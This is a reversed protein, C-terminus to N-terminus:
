APTLLSSVYLLLKDESRALDLGTLEGIRRLRYDLTNRHIGLAQATAASNENRAFWTELTERLMRRSRDHALRAIPMRLQRAEWGTDLGSLLVPLALEYYSFVQQQPDREHGIRAATRASRYSIAAAEIGPLAIGMSLTFPLECGERVLNSLAQMRRQPVGDAGKRGPDWSDLLVMEHPGVTATLAAPQHAAIRMQLRQIEGLARDSGDQGPQLQLLFALQMRELGIGLRGAWAELEPRAAPEYRILNLVFAERYRSHSQLEQTLAAQELIMEATLRVLEGFQRVEDPAGSLGVAGCIQGNVALPLNIGPRAGHLNRASAPDVEVTLKKALALLAGAHLEGVREQQGSALIVGNADMVNVTFPIIRMTRNVIEQALGTDLIHLNSHM